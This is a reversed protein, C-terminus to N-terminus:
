GDSNGGRWPWTMDGPVHERGKGHAKPVGWGTFLESAEVFPEENIRM